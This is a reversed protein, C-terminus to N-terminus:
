AELYFEDPGAFGPMLASDQSLLPRERLLACAAARADETASGPRVDVLEFMEEARDIVSLDSKYNVWWSLYAAIWRRVGVTLDGLPEMDRQNLCEVHPPSEWTYDLDPRLVMPSGYRSGANRKYQKPRRRYEIAVGPTEIPALLEQRNLMLMEKISWDLALGGGRGWQRPDEQQGYVVNMVFARVHKLNLPHAWHRLMREAEIQNDVSRLEALLEDSIENLNTIINKKEPDLKRGFVM